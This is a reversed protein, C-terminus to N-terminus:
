KTLRTTLPESCRTLLSTLFSCISCSCILPVPRLSVMVDLEMLDTECGGLIISLNPQTREFDGHVFEKIYTGAEALLRLTFVNELEESKICDFDKLYVPEMKLSYIRRRRTAMTRRHLVRIPTKQEIYLDKLSNIKDFDETTIKRSSCCLARYEKTKSEQGAKLHKSVSEKTVVQLDRVQVKGEHRANLFEQIQMMMSDNFLDLNEVEYLKFVFPRGKGLMRVDVDERGSSAFTSRGYQLFKILGEELLEQVSDTIRVDNKDIWPSQSLNRLYKNYRGAICIVETCM